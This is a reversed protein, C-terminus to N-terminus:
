KFLNLISKFLVIKLISQSLLISKPNTGSIRFEKPLVRPFKVIPIKDIYDLLNQNTVSLCMSFVLIFLPLTLKKIKSSISFLVVLIISSLHVLISLLFLIIRYQKKLKLDAVAYMFISISLGQRIINEGMNEFFFFSTYLLFLLFKNKSPLRLFTLVTFLMFLSAIFFIFFFSDLQLLKCIYILFYFGIDKLDFLSTIGTFSNYAEIYNKTDGLEPSRFGFLLLFLFSFFIILGFELRASLFKKKISFIVVSISFMLFYLALFLSNYIDM